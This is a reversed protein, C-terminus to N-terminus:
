SHSPTVLRKNKPPPPPPPSKPGKSDDPTPPSTAKNQFQENVSGQQIPPSLSDGQDQSFSELLLPNIKKPLPPPRASKVRGGFGNIVTFAQGAPSATNGEAPQGSNPNSEMTRTNSVLQPLRSPEETIDPPPPAAVSLKRSSFLGSVRNEKRTLKREEADKVGSDLSKEQSRSSQKRPLPPEAGSDGSVKPSEKESSSSSSSSLSIVSLPRFSRIMSRPRSGGGGGGRREEFLSLDRVGYENEVKTKLQAFCEEMRDHFPKLAETVKKGHVKIGEELLPIQWAILDKLKMINEMDEPHEYMYKETFFATEYKTFGGMVAPDVTGNLLMSLPNISLNPDSHHQNIMTLIKDNSTQMTEIANELPSIFTMSTQVVEFWRLIGPMKYATTFTTREIWMSAFENDPDKPGRRFPRSYSFKSVNNAKFFGVIQEPVNKNHFQPQEGLIPQVTFCQVVTPMTQLSPLSCLPAAANYSCRPFPSLILEFPPPDRLLM